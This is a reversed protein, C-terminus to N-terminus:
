CRATSSWTAAQEGRGQLVVVPRDHLAPLRKYETSFSSICGRSTPWTSAARPRTELDQYARIATDLEKLIGRYDVLVGYRKADHLRNVRAVAQILNHEKLPKDIYLVTNRPEDFGTLLKDVVILLDPGGDTGFDDLVQKEYAERGPWQGARNAEVVEAGRAAQEEDVEANGERTDPASIVIASTVLGTDDLLRRTASPM